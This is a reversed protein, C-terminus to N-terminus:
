EDEKKIWKNNRKSYYREVDSVENFVISEVERKVGEGIEYALRDADVHDVPIMDGNQWSELQKSRRTYGDHTKELLGDSRLQKLVKQVTAKSPANEMDSREMWDVITQASFEQRDMAMKIAISSVHTTRHTIQEGM